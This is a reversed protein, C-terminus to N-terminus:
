IASPYEHCLYYRRPEDEDLNPFRALPEMFYNDKIDDCVSSVERSVSISTGEEGWFQHAVRPPLCISDGPKLRVIDGSDIRRTQANVQIRLEGQRPQGGDDVATFQVIINGGAENTIDEMKSQHFHLPARQGEPNLILKEAYPKPYGPKHKSGNRMTFLIRGIEEFDGIGFDTVDWGLMCDRIEDADHGKDAWEEVTWYAFPPLHIGYDAMTKIALEISANVTSRKLIM